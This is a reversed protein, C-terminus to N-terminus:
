ICRRFGTAGFNLAWRASLNETQRSLIQCEGQLNEWTLIDREKKEEKKEREREKKKKKTLGSRGM